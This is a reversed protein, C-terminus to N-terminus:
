GCDYITNDDAFHCIESKEIFMFITNIFVNFLLSGLISGQPVGRKIEKWVSYSSGIKVRQKHSTLYDLLLSLSSKSLGYAEFKAIIVDHPLCDCAKSLDMLITGVLGSNDLENQWQQLLKFLAHQISHAQRFGCLLKNLFTDMYKGLQNYIVREFVKSLLPLVSVPRFNTKDTPDDKKHVPTINANKLTIPFKGNTLAYNVCKTLEDFSFNSKKLINVPIEGGAAKNTPVDRIIAKIEETTALRFSFNSKVKYQEKIKIISPHNRFKYVINDIDDLGGCVKENPFEYLDLSDTIHGFYQNFVKGVEENKLLMKNNEILMIKSDGCAHKNSFYPKCTEWFPRSRESNSVENFYEYKAQRNLSVVLNRQKKYNVIDVPAKTRTAKNKLRSRKIIAKSLNKYYNPKHNGRSIKVKKPAHTNLMKIFNQECNEYEGNCNRLSSTLDKELSEWQFQKYNRYTVKKFEAKEFTTKLMLYILHHHDSIGTEFSSTNKFCYKRNTLILDICSGDGKFCTNNKMLKYYNYHKMFAPLQTHSPDMNFDGLM